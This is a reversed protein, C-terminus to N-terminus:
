DRSTSIFGYIANKNCTDKILYVEMGNITTTYRYNGEWDIIMWLSKLNANYNALVIIVDELVKLFRTTTTRDRSLHWSM